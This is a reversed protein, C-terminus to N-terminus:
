QTAGRLPFISEQFNSRTQITAWGIPKELHYFWSVSCVPAYVFTKTPSESWPAKLITRPSYSLFPMCYTIGRIVVKSATSISVFGKQFVTRDLSWSCREQEHIQLCSLAPRSSRGTERPFPTRTDMSMIERLCWERQTPQTHAAWKTQLKQGAISITQVSDAISDCYRRQWRISNILFQVQFLQVFSYFRPVYMSETMQKQAVKSICWWLRRWGTIPEISSEGAFGSRTITAIDKIFTIEEDGHSGMWPTEFTTSHSPYQLRLSELLSISTRSRTFM